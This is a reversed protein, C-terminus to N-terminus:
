GRRINIFSCMSDFFIVIVIKKVEFIIKISLLGDIGFYVDCGFMYVVVIYLKDKELIVNNVFIFLFECEEILEECVKEKLFINEDCSLVIEVLVLVNYNGYM